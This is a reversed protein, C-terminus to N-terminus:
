DNQEETEGGIIRRKRTPPDEVIEYIGTSALFAAGGYQEVEAESLDRAPIGPISAGGGIYRMTTM